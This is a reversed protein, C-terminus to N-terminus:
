TKISPQTKFYCERVLLSLRATDDQVAGAEDLLRNYQCLLLLFYFLYWDTFCLARFSRKAETRRSVDTAEIPKIRCRCRQVDFRLLVHEDCVQSADIYM